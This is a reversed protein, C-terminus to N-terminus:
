NEKLYNEIEEISSMPTSTGSALYAKKCKSLNYKKLDDLTEIKIVLSNIFKNKAIQYLKDTNSSKVSGIIVFLDFDDELSLINQQRSRTASCIEDEFIANPIHEKIDKYIEEIELLSLTTQNVVSPTKSSVKSYDIGENIDYLITNKSCSLGAETEPHGKKGIYIVQNSKSKEKILEMNKIVKPCTLDYFEVNNRRLIDEYSENHGHATFLVIENEKFENLRKEKDINTTDITEIQHNLLYEKVVYNHVLLGFVYIKKSTNNRIKIAETIAKFVGGCYGVPRLLITEM